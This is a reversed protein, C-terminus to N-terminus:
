TTSYLEGCAARNSSLFIERWVQEALGLLTGRCSNTPLTAFADENNPLMSLVRGLYQDGAGVSDVYADRVKGISHEMRLEIIVDNPGEPVHKAVTCGGKRVTHTAFLEVIIQCAVLEEQTLSDVVDRLMSGFRDDQYDRPLLEPHGKTQVM